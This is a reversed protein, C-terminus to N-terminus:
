IGLDLEVVLQARFLKWQSGCYLDVLRVELEQLLKGLWQRHSEAARDRLRLLTEFDHFPCHLKGFGQLM